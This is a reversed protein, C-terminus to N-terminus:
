LDRLIEQRKQEYEEKTILEQDYLEQLQLLRDKVPPKAPAPAAPQASPAPTAPAPQAAPAPAATPITILQTEEGAASVRPINKADMCVWNQDILQQGEVAVLKTFARYGKTPDFRNLEQDPATKMVINRLAINLRGDKVFMVGDSQRFSGLVMQGRFTNVSFDVWEEPGAEAFAQALHEAVMKIEDDAFVDFEKGKKGTLSFMEPRFYKLSRLAAEMDGATFACPHQFPALKKNGKVVKVWTDQGHKFIVKPKSFWSLGLAESGVLLGALLVAVALSKMRM